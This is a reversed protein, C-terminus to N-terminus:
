VARGLRAGISAVGMRLGTTVLAGSVLRHRLYCGALRVAM